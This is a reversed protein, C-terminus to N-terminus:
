MAFAEELFDLTGAETWKKMLSNRVQTDRFVRGHEVWKKLTDADVPGYENDDQGLVIYEM